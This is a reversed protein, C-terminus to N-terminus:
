SEDSPPHLHRGVGRLLALLGGIARRTEPEHLMRVLALTGPPDGELSDRSEGLGERVGHTLRELGDPPLETLVKGLALVASILKRGSDSNLQDLAVEMVKDARATFDTMTRLAGTEHLTQLLHEWEAHAGPLRAPPAQYDLEQAM